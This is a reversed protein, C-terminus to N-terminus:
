IDIDPEREQDHNGCSCQQKHDSDTQHIASGAHTFLVLPALLDHAASKRKVGWGFRYRAKEAHLTCSAYLRTPVNRWRCEHGYNPKVICTRFTERHKVPAQNGM